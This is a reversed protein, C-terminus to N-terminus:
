VALELTLVRSRLVAADVGFLLALRTLFMHFEHDRVNLSFRVFGPVGTEGNGYEGEIGHPPFVSGCSPGGPQWQLCQVWAFWTDPVSRLAVLQPPKQLAFLSRLQKWRKALMVSSYNWFSPFQLSL